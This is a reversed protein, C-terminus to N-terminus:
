SALQAQWDDVPGGFAGDIAGYISTAATYPSNVIWGYHGFVHAAAGWGSSMASSSDAANGMGMLRAALNDAGAAGRFADAGSTFIGNGFTRSTSFVDPLNRVSISFNARGASTGLGGVMDDLFGMTGPKFGSSFKALSGFPIVGVIALGVELPSSNGRGAKYLTLVLAAIAVIAGLAAIIPGGIVFALVALVIGAWQLVVLIGDVIGDVDDWFGDEIGGDTAEGINDTALDFATKWTDYENDFLRAEDVFDDYDDEMAGRATNIASQHDSEAQTPGPPTSADPAPGAHDSPLPHNVDNFASRSSAYADWKDQCRPVIRKMETQVSELTNGYAILATGTPKYREGALKLEEDIEGIVEKIKEISLGKQPVGNDAIKRLVGAAGIMQDGLSEIQEGRNVIGDPNGTVVTIENGEPSPDM